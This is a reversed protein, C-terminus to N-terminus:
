QDAVGHSVAIPGRENRWVAKIPANPARGHSRVIIMRSLPGLLYSNSFSVRRQARPTKPNGTM